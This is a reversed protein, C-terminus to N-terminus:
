YMVRQIRIEVSLLPKSVSVRFQCYRSSTESKAIIRKLDGNKQSTAGCGANRSWWAREVSRKGVVCHCPTVVWGLFFAPSGILGKFVFQIQRIYPSLAYRATFM